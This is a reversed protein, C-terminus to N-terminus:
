KKYKNKELEYLIKVLTSEYEILKALRTESSGLMKLLELENKYLAVHQSLEHCNAGTMLKTLRFVLNYDENLM